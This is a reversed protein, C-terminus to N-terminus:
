GRVGPIEADDDTWTAGAVPVRSLSQIILDLNDFWFQRVNPTYYRGRVWEDPLLPFPVPTGMEQALQHIRYAEAHNICVIYGGEEYCRRIMELTKGGQRPRIILETM